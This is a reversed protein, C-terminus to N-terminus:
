HILHILENSNRSLEWEFAAITGAAFIRLIFRVIYSQAAEIYDVIDLRWVKVRQPTLLQIASRFRALVLWHRFLLVNSNACWYLPAVASFLFIGLGIKYITAPYPVAM